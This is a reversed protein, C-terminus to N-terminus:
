KEWEVTITLLSTDVVKGKRGDGLDVPSNLLHPGAPAMGDGVWLMVERNSAKVPKGSSSAVPNSVEVPEGSSYVAPYPENMLWYWVRWLWKRGARVTFFDLCFAAYLTVGLGFIVVFLLFADRAEIM